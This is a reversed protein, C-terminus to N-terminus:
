QDNRLRKIIQAANPRQPNIEQSTKVTNTTKANKQLKKQHSHSASATKTPVSALTATTDQHEMSSDTKRNSDPERNAVDNHSVAPPSQPKTQTVSDSFTWYTQAEEPRRIKVRQAFIKRDEVFLPENKNLFTCPGRWVLTNFSHMDREMNYTIARDLIEETPCAVPNKGTAYFLNSPGRAIVTASEKAPSTKGSTFYGHFIIFFGFASISLWFIGARIDKWAQNPVPKDLPVTQLEFGCICKLSSDSNSTHCDPCTWSM